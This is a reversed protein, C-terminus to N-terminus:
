DQASRSDRDRGDDNRGDKREEELQTVLSELRALRERLELLEGRIGTTAAAREMSKALLNDFWNGIHDKGSGVLGGGWRLLDHLSQGPLFPSRGQGEILIKALTQATIDAATANDIVVVEEGARIMDAIDSLRVYQKAELDYLKRNEYRKITRPM